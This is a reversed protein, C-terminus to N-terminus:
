VKGTGKCRLCRGTGNCISCKIKGTASCSSCSKDTGLIISGSRGSGECKLCDILGGSCQIYNAGPRICDGNRCYVATCKKEGASGGTPPTTLAPVAPTSPLLTVPSPTGTSAYVMESLDSTGYSSHRARVWYYYTTNPNLNIHLYSAYINSSLLIKTNSPSGVTYYLEISYMVSLQPNLRLQIANPTIAYTVSEASLTSPFAYNGGDDTKASVPESFSSEGIANIAVVHFYYTTNPTLGTWNCSTTTYVNGATKAGTPTTSIYSRYSTAGPVTGWRLDIRRSSTATAEVSIPALPAGIKIAKFTSYDSVGYSNSATIYYYYIEDVTLGSHTFSNTTVTGVLEIEEMGESTIYYVDYSTARAASTWNVMISTASQLSINVGSPAAPTGDAITLTGASLGSADKWFSTAEVNFTVNYTGFYNPPIDTIPYTEKDTSEYYVTVEGTSKGTRATVDVIKDENDFYVTGAGSIDYDAAVPTPIIINLTGASLGNAANWGEAAAVDFTVTYEGTESPSAEEGNYKVTVAGKTKGTKAAITVKKETGDFNVTGIGSINFDAIIPTERQSGNEEGNGGLLGDCAIFSFGIIAIIAIIVINHIVKFHKNKKM